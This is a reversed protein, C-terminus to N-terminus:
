AVSDPHFPTSPRGRPLPAGTSVRSKVHGILYDAGMVIVILVAASISPM